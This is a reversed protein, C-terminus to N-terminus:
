QLFLALQQLALLKQLELTQQLLFMALGVVVLDLGKM